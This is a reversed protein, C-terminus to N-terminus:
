FFIGEETILPTAYIINDTKFKWALEGTKTHLAYIYGDWAGV